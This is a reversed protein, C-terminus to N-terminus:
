ELNLTTEAVGVVNVPPDATTVVKKQGEEPTPLTTTTPTVESSVVPDSTSWVQRLLEFKEDETKEATDMIEKSQQFKVPDYEIDNVSVTAGM